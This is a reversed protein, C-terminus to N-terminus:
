IYKYAYCICVAYININHICLYRYQEYMNEIDIYLVDEIYQIRWCSWFFFALFHKRSCQPENESVDFLVVEDTSGDCSCYAKTRRAPNLLALRQTANFTSTRVINFIIHDAEQLLYWMVRLLRGSNRLDENRDTEVDGETNGPTRWRINVFNFM